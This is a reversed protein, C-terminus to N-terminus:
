PRSKPLPEKFPSNIKNTFSKHTCTYLVPTHAFAYMHKNPRIYSLKLLFRSISSTNVDHHRWWISVNETNSARQAPFEGTVPSNGARLGTVRLKSTKKSRLRFLRNLLCDHPQHNSVSDHGNHRWQLTYPCSREMQTYFYSSDTYVHVYFHLCIALKIPQYMEVYANIYGFLHVPSSHNVFALNSLHNTKTDRRALHRHVLGNNIWKIGESSNQELVNIM